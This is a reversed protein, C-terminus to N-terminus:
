GVVEFNRSQVQRTGDKEVLMQDGGRRAVVYSVPEAANIVEQGDLLLRRGNILVLEELETGDLAFRAWAWEFDSALRASEVMGGDGALLVDHMRKGTIEFCRGGRAKTERVRTETTKDHASHPIIFTMFEQAGTAQITFIFVPAPTRAGYRRSVWGEEGRWEGRPNFAFIDLGSGGACRERVATVGGDTEAAPDAGSAFHFRLDYRHAAAAGGVRDRVIWYDGKLFLVGREVALKEDLREYGNHTGAFHDFRERNIWSQAEARAIHSWSFPGSPVSSSEGDVTLTNHAPSSRFSNREEAAGTYTYTGPDVLLTRGAAALEFSLADAHAHGCNLTGHPGCDIILYNAEANWGDRMVYYGGDAFARSCEAPPQAEVSDFADLGTKGLLWLTEESREGAVYKYDARGFLAAGTALSARFDDAERDDLMVLRGGDDDGFLPAHGDPRTIYMVHDLLATLKKKVEDDLSFGNAQALILFHTYFDITYRHYYSAQEFYVGDPRVHRDLEAILIREGIVRWHAARRFEPWVTGLYFLGLAEGTLHTNPSFYTSLYTELHRAHLYLFKLARIFIAATLHPSDKFFHLAWLWSISRFSVELNSAWNIGLKPPNQNMWSDLHAVFTEACGEDGTHWYARGLTAFYQHRNLEWVIKKDGAIEADLYDIRSWHVLPTRKGAVPELHWDVPDGFSLGRWGLLDFKNGIIRKAEEVVDEGARAGFRRRLEASTQERDDFSGFFNPKTRTRFHALLDAAASETQTGSNGSGVKNLLAPNLLKFFAEDTPVRTQTSWGRREAAAQAAQAGRVRLEGFGRGRLKKLKTLVEIVLKQWGHEDSLRRKITSSSNSKGVEFRSKGKFCTRM